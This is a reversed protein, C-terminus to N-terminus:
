LMIINYDSYRVDNKEDNPPQPWYNANYRHYPEKAILHFCPFRKDYLTSTQRKQTRQRKKRKYRNM